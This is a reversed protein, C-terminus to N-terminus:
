GELIEMSQVLSDNLTYAHQVRGDFLVSGDLDRVVQHVDVVIRGEDDTQFGIPNVQPNIQSWQRTWYDRVADRGYVFGGDMGNAWKIDPQMAALVAEIERQNFDAYMQTLLAQEAQM